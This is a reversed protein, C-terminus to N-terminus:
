LNREPPVVPDEMSTWSKPWKHKPLRIWCKQDIQSFFKSCHHHMKWKSRRTLQYQTQQKDQIYGPLRSIIDIVKAATMQSASSGQESFFAYSGSDDKVFDGRLVVQGATIQSFKAGVLIKKLHCHDMLSSFHVTRDGEKSGRDCWKQIQSEYAATGTNERTRGMWEGSRGKCRTIKM